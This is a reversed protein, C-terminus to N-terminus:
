FGQVILQKDLEVLQTSDLM